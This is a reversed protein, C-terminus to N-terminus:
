GLAEMQEVAWKQAAELSLCSALMSAGTRDNRVQVVYADSFKFKADPQTQYHDVTLAFRDVRASWIDLRTGSELLSERHRWEVQMKKMASM